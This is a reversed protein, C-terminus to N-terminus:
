ILRMFATSSIQPYTIPSDILGELYAVQIKEFNDYLIDKCYEIDQEDKIFLDPQFTSEPGSIDSTFALTVDEESDNRWRRWVNARTKKVPPPEGAPIVPQHKQPHDCYDDFSNLNIIIDKCFVRKTVPCYIIFQHLGPPLYAAYIFTNCQKYGDDKPKKNRNMMPVLVGGILTMMEKEEPKNPVIEYGSPMNIAEVDQCANNNCKDNMILEWGKAYNKIDPFVSDQNQLLFQEVGKNIVKGYKSSPTLEKSSGVSLLTFLDARMMKLKRQFGGNNVVTGVIFPAIDSKDRYTFNLCNKVKKIIKEDKIEILDSNRADKDQDYYIM